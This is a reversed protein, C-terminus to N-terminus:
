EGGDPVNIVNSKPDYPSGHCGEFWAEWRAELAKVLGPKEAALDRLETRDARMDYLKWPRRHRSIAKFGGSRVARAREWYWFLAREATTSDERTLPLLSTGDLPTLPREQLIEPYDVGAAELCTPLIDVVHGPAHVLKGSTAVGEPWSVILPSAIGGEELDRKFKRFPTNSVRAWARGIGFHSAPTGAPAKPDYEYDYLNDRIFTGWVGDRKCAGNDSLFLILTNDLQKTEELKAVLRGVNQDVSDIMAAHVAMRLDAAAKEADSLADWGGDQSQPLAWKKDVIGMELMRAHRATRIAQPGALYKGRYRDIDDPKAHLPWHPAHYALYLFFPQEPEVEEEIFRLAFDTEADTKYFGETRPVREGDLYSPRRDDHFYNGGSTNGFCHDFGRELVNEMEPMVEGDAKGVMFTAYGAPRLLEALTAAGRTSRVPPPYLGSLLANRTPACKPTVYFQTLRVGREALRDLNPTRIEGGYCGLDSYGMDDVLIVVINPQRQSAPEAQGGSSDTSASLAAAVSALGALAIPVRRWRHALRRIGRSFSGLDLM